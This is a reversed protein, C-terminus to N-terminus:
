GLVVPGPGINRESDYGNNVAGDSCGGRIADTIAEDFRAPFIDTLVKQYYPSEALKGKKSRGGAKLHTEMWRLVKVFVKKIIGGEAIFWTKEKPVEQLRRYRKEVTGLGLSCGNFPEDICSETSHLIEYYFVSFNLALGLRIPHTPPLDTSATSTAAQYAKLSQDAVEKRENRIAKMRTRVEEGKEVVVQKIVKAMEGSALKGNGCEDREVEVRAGLEVLRANLPQDIHMAMAIIPVGLKMGELISSWGCHSVFGGISPHAIIKMQPAWGDAVMGREGIKELFGKPLAEHLKTEEGKPFRKWSIVFKTGGRILRTTCWSRQGTHLRQEGFGWVLDIEGWASDKALPALDEVPLSMGQGIFDVAWVRYERGLDKLQKEYHFSGTLSQRTGESLVLQSILSSLKIM